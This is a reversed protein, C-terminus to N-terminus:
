NRISIYSIQYWSTTSITSVMAMRSRQSITEVSATLCIMIAGVIVAPIAMRHVLATYSLYGHFTSATTFRVKVTNNEDAGWMM